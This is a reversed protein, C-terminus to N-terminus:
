LLNLLLPKLIDIETDSTESEDAADSNDEDSNDVLNGDHCKIAERAAEAVGGVKTCHILNPDNSTIGCAEFSRIIVDTSLRRWSEKVWNVMTLRSPARPNNAPTLDTARAPDQLWEEYLETYVAKFPANWSVDAPQLLKTCGGPIVGMITNTKKLSDKAQETLHSRFSDWVLMRKGFAMKGWCKDIWALTTEEQMRGNSSMEIIVGQVDKLETPLRKGKFVILPQLKHGDSLAGLCVTVRTKDHGTTLISVTKVGKVDVSKAGPMDAWIATEDMNGIAGPAFQFRSRQSSCFLVFKTVKDTLEPPLRQGTTTRQRICFDYRRLFNDVWGRSAKFENQGNSSALLQAKM